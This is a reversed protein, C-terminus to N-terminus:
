GHRVPHRGKASMLLDLEISSPGFRKFLAEAEEPDLGYKEQFEELTYPKGRVLRPRSRVERSQM